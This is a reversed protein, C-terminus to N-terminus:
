RASGDPVGSPIDWLASRGHSVHLVDARELTIVYYNVPPLHGEKLTARDVTPADVQGQVVPEAQLQVENRCLPDDGEQCVGDRYRHAIGAM